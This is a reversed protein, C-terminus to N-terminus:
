CAFAFLAATGPEPVSTAARTWRAWTANSIPATDTSASIVQGFLPGTAGDFDIHSPGTNELNIMRLSMSDGMNRAFGTQVNCKAAPGRGDRECGATLSPLSDFYFGDLDLFVQELLAQSAIFASNYDSFVFDSADDCGGFLSGCNGTVFEVDYLDAGVLVGQAGRLVGGDVVPVAQAPAHICLGTIALAFVVVLKRCSLPAM